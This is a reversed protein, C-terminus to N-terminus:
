GAVHHSEFLFTRRGVAVRAGPPLVKSGGSPLRVWDAMDPLLVYTGNASGRDSVSVVWESLSLAAHIRSVSREPDVLVLPRARGSAVEPADAPERGIVYETDLTFASGDDIVLIGLPPRPGTVLTRTQQNFDIGCIACFRADPHNFHHRSCMIGQVAIEASSAAPVPATGSAADGPVPLPDRVEVGDTLSVIEFNTSMVTARPVSRTPIRPPADVPLPPGPPMPAESVIPNLITADEAVPAAHSEGQDTVVLDVIAADGLVVGDRLDTSPDSEQDILPETGLVLRSPSTSIVHDLWSASDRGSMRHTGTEDVWIVEMGKTLLVAVGNTGIAAAGFSPVSDAPQVVTLGILRRGLLDGPHAASSCVDNLVAILDDRVALQEAAVPGVVMVGLGVRAVLSAGPM